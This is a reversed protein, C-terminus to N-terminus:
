NVEKAEAEAVTVDKPKRNYSLIFLLALVAVIVGIWFPIFEELRGLWLFIVGIFAIIGWFIRDAMSM